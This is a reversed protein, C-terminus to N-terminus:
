YPADEDSHPPREGSGPDNQASVPGNGISGVSLEENANGPLPTFYFFRAWALAIRQQLNFDLV